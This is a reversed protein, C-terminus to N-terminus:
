ESTIIKWKSVKKKECNSFDFGLIYPEEKVSFTLNITEGHPIVKEIVEIETDGANDFRFEYTKVVSELVVDKDKDNTILVEMKLEDSFLKVDSFIVGLADLRYKCQGNEIVQGNEGISIKINNLYPTIIWLAIIIILIGLVVNVIKRNKSIKTEGDFFVHKLSQKSIHWFSKNKDDDKKM